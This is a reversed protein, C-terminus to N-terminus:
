IRRRKERRKDMLVKRMVEDTGFTMEAKHILFDIEEFSDNCNIYLTIIDIGEIELRDFLSLQYKLLEFNGQESCYHLYLWDLLIAKATEDGNSIKTIIEKIENEIKENNM